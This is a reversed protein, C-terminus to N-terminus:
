LKTKFHEFLVGLGWCAALFSFLWGVFPLYFVLWSLSVGLILAMMLSDKKLNLKKTLLRGLYLAVLVRSILILLLWSSFIILSLPIGILTFIFLFSVLPPLILMGLGKLLSFSSSKKFGYLIEWTKNKLLTIFLLGVLFASFISILYHWITSYAENKKTKYFSHKIEGGIEAQESIQAESNSRYFIGDKIEASDSIFLDPKSIKKNLLLDTRGQIQGSINLNSGWSKLNRGVSGSVDGQNAIFLLDQSVSATKTLSFNPSAIYANEKIQGSITVKEGLLKVGGTIKGNIEASKSILAFVEGEVEGDIKLREGLFFVDGKVKGEVSLDKGLAYINDNIVQKEAVVTNDRIKLCGAQASFPTILLIGLLFLFLFKKRTKLM